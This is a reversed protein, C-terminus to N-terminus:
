NCKNTPKPQNKIQQGLTKLPTEKAENECIKRKKNSHKLAKAWKTTSLSLQAVFMSKEQKTRAFNPWKTPHLVPPDRVKRQQTQLPGAPKIAKHTGLTSKKELFHTYKKGRTKQETEPINQFGRSDQKPKPLLAASARQPPVFLQQTDPAIVLQSIQSHVWAGHPKNDLKMIIECFRLLFTQSPSFFFRWLEFIGM